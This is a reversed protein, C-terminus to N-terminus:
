RKAMWVQRLATSRAAFFGAFAALLAVRGNAAAFGLALAVPIFRLIQPSLASAVAGGSTIAAIARKLLAFHVSGAVYGIVGFFVALLAGIGTM